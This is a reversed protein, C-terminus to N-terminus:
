DSSVCEKKRRAQEANFADLAISALTEYAQQPTTCFGYMRAAAEILDRVAATIEVEDEYKLEDIYLVVASMAEDQRTM